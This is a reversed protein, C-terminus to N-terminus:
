LVRMKKDPDREIVFNYIVAFLIRFSFVILLYIITVVLYVELTRFNESALSNATGTLENASIASALSSGLLIMTFQAALPPYIVQLAPVLIILLFVQVPNFGLAAGAEFQGHPIAEVGARIIETAYAGLNVVMAVLATQTPTLHLGVAPMGFFFFYLQLLLPTNRIIEIYVSFLAALWKPGGTKAWAGVIAIVSGYLVAQMTLLVTVGAGRVLLGLAAPLWSFSLAQQFMRRSAAPLSGRGRRWRKETLSLLFRALPAVSTLLEAIFVDGSHSSQFVVARLDQTPRCLYRCEQQARRPLGRAVGTALRRTPKM